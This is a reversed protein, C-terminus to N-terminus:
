RQRTIVETNLWEMLESARKREHNAGLCMKIFQNILPYNSQEKEPLSYQSNIASLPTAYPSKKYCMEYALCGLCFM